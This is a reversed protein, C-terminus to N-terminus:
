YRTHIGTETVTSPSTSDVITVSLQPDPGGDIVDFTGLSAGIIFAEHSDIQETSTGAGPYLIFQFGDRTVM